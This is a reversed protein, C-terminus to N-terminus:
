LTIEKMKDGVTVTAKNDCDGAGYDITGAVMETVLKLQGSRIWQCNWSTHLKVPTSISISVNTGNTHKYVLTGTGETDYEDDGPNAITSGGNTQKVTKTHNYVAIISDNLKVTGDTIKQTFSIGGNPEKNYGTVTYLINGSVPKGNITFNQLTVKVTTGPTTLYGSFVAIIKGGRVRNNLSNSCSTGFDINVTIPWTLGGEIYASPCSPSPTTLLAPNGESRRASPDPIQQAAGASVADFIDSYYLDVEAQYAAGAMVQKDSQEAVVPDTNKAADKKCAFFLATIAIGTFTWALVRNTCFYSKM